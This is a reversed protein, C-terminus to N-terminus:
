LPKKLLALTEAHMYKRTLNPVSQNITYPFQCISAEKTNEVNRRKEQIKGVNGAQMIVGYVCAVREVNRLYNEHSSALIHFLKIEFEFKISIFVYNLKLFMKFCKSLRKHNFKV